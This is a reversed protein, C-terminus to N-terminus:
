AHWPRKESQPRATAKANDTRMRANPCLRLKTALSTLSATAGRLMKDAEADMPDETLRGALYNSRVAFRCYNALLPVDSSRFFDAPLSNVIGRWVVKEARTLDKLPPLRDDLTTKVVTM